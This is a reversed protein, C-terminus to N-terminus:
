SNELDELKVVKTQVTAMQAKQQVRSKELEDTVVELRAALEKNKFVLDNQAREVEVAMRRKEGNFEETV